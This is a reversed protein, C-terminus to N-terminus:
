LEKSIDEWTSNLIAAQIEAEWKKDVIGNGDSDEIMKIRNGNIDYFYQAMFDWKGDADNDRLYQTRQKNQNYKYSEIYDAKGDLDTDLEYRNLNNAGDYSFQANTYPTTSENSSQINQSTKNGKADYSYAIDLSTNDSNTETFRRVKGNEVTLSVTKDAQSDGDSDIEYGTMTENDDYSYSTNFDPIGDSSKDISFKTLLNGNYQFSEDISLANSDVTTRTILRNRTDYSLTQTTNNASNFITNLRDDQDYTFSQTTDTIGDNNQDFKVISTRGQDDYEFEISEFFGNSLNNTLKATLNSEISIGLYDYMNKAADVFRIPHLTQMTNRAQIFQANNEFGSAKVLLPISQASLQSHADGLNLGNSPDGDLDLGQLLTAINIAKEYSNPTQSLFANTIEKQKILPKVGSLIFPTVLEQAKTIGLTTSGLKFTVSEGEIYKFEGLENTLGSQTLTEYFLGQVPSDQFAGTQIEPASTASSSDGGGCGTLATTTIILSLLHKKM